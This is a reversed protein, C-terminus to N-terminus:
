LAAVLALQLNHLSCCHLSSWQMASQVAPTMALRRFWSTTRNGLLLMTCIHSLSSWSTQHVAMFIVDLLAYSSAEFALM